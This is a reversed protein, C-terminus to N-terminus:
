SNSDRRGRIYLDGDLNETQIDTIRKAEPMSQAGLGMLPSVADAGGCLLQPAVFVHFEDIFDSDFLGGLLRGGGEVLVNTAGADALRELLRDFRAPFSADEM